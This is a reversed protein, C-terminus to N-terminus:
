ILDYCLVDLRWCQRGFFLLFLLFDEHLVELLYECGGFVELVNEDVFVMLDEGIFGDMLVHLLQDLSDVCFYWFLM